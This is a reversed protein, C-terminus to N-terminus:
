SGLAPRGLATLAANVVSHSDGDNIVIWVQEDDTIGISLTAGPPRSTIIADRLEDDFDQNGPLIVASEPAAPGKGRAELLVAEAVALDTGNVALLRAAGSGGLVSVSGSAGM